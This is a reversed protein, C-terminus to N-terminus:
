TAGVHEWGLGTFRSAVQFTLNLVLALQVAGPFMKNKCFNVQVSDLMRAFMFNQPRLRATRGSGGGVATELESGM